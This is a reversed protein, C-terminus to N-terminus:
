YVTTCYPRAQMLCACVQWKCKHGRRYFIACPPGGASTCRKWLHCVRVRHCGPGCSRRFPCSRYRSSVGGERMERVAEDGVVRQPKVTSQNFWHLACSLPDMRLLDANVGRGSSAWGGAGQIAGWQGVPVNHGKYRLSLWVGSLSFCGCFHLSSIWFHLWPALLEGRLFYSCVITPKLESEQSRIHWRRTTRNGAAGFKSRNLLCHWLDASSSRSAGTRGRLFAGTSCHPLRGFLAFHGTLVRVTAYVERPM